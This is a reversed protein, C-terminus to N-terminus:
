KISKRFHPEECHRRCYTVHYVPLVILTESQLPSSYSELVRSLTFTLTDPYQRGVNSM